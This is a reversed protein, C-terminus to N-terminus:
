ISARFNVEEELRPSLQRDGSERPNSWNPHHVCSAPATEARSRSDTPDSPSVGKVNLKLTTSRGTDAPQNDKDIGEGRVIRVIQESKVDSKKRSTGRPRSWTLSAGDGHAARWSGVLVVVTEQVLLAYVLSLQFSYYWPWLLYPMQDNINGTLVITLAGAVAFTVGVVVWPVTGWVTAKDCGIGGRRSPPPQESARSDIITLTTDLPSPTVATRGMDSSSSDSRSRRTAAGATSFAGSGGINPFAGMNPSGKPSAPPSEEADLEREMWRTQLARVDPSAFMDNASDDGRPSAAGSGNNILQSIAGSGSVRGSSAGNGYRGLADM